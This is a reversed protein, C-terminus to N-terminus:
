VSTEKSDMDRIELKAAKQICSVQKYLNKKQEFLQSLQWWYKASDKLAEKCKSYISIAKDTDDFFVGHINAIEIKYNYNNTLKFLQEYTNIADKPSNNKIFTRAQMILELENAYETHFKAKEEDSKLSYTKAFLRHFNPNNKLLHEYATCMEFAKDVNNLNDLYIEAVKNLFIPNKSLNYMQNYINIAEEFRQEEILKPAYESYKQLLEMTHKLVNTLCKYKDHICGPLAQNTLVLYTKKDCIEPNELLYKRLAGGENILDCYAHELQDFNEFEQSKLEECKKSYEILKTEFNEM